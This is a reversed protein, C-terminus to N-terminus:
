FILHISYPLRLNFGLTTARLYIFGLGCGFELFTFDKSPQSCIASSKKINKFFECFFFFFFIICGMQVLVVDFKKPPRINIL